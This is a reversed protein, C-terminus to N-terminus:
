AALSLYKEGELKSNVRGATANQWAQTCGSAIRDHLEIAIATTRDLWALNSTLLELEGGEIDIKAIDLGGGGFRELLSPITIM